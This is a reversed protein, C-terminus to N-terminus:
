SPDLNKFIKFPPPDPVQWHNKLGVYVGVGMNM